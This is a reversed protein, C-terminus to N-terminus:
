VEFEIPAKGHELIFLESCLTITRPNRVERSRLMTAIANRIADRTECQSGRCSADRMISSANELVGVSFERDFVLNDGLFRVVGVRRLEEANDHMEQPVTDRLKLM